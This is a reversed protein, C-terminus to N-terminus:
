TASESTTATTGASGEDTAQYHRVVERGDEPSLKIQQGTDFVALYYEDSHFSGERREPKHQVALLRAANIVTNNIKIFKDM